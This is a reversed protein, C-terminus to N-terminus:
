TLSYGKKSLGQLILNEVPMRTSGENLAYALLAKNSALHQVENFVHDASNPQAQQMRKHFMSHIPKQIFYTQLLNDM